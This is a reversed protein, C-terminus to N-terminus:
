GEGELRDAAFVIGEVARRYVEEFVPLRERIKETDTEKGLEELERAANFLPKMGLNSSLGKVGHTEIVFRGIDGEEFHRRIESINRESKQTFMRAIRLYSATKGAFVRDIVSLDVGSEMAKKRVDPPISVGPRGTFPTENM